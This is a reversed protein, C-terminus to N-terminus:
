HQLMHLSQLGEAHPILKKGEYKRRRNEERMKKKAGKKAPYTEDAVVDFKEKPYKRKLEKVSGVGFLLKIFNVAISEEFIKIGAMKKVKSAFLTSYDCITDSDVQIGFNMLVREARMYPNKSALFLCFDVIPAGYNCEEYFPAKAEYVYGCKKCMFRKVRVKVDKFSDDLIIRCFIRNIADHRRYDRSKCRPCPRPEDYFRNEYELQILKPFGSSVLGPALKDVEKKKPPRM